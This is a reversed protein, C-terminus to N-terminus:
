PNRHGADYRERMASLLRTDRIEPKQLVCTECLEGGSTMYYRCCGGRSRFTRSFLERNQDDCLTLDFYHLQRNNLPSGSRKLIKMASNRARDECGLERGIELFRGAVADAVLRWLASRSLSTRRYLHDVLPMMHDEIGMRYHDCLGDHDPLQIAFDAYEVRDTWSRQTLFRVHARRVLVTKDDHKLPVIHFRMAYNQLSLDPLIGFRVFMPVTALTFVYCYDVMMAAACTKLDTNRSFSGEYELYEDVLAENLVFRDARVWGTELDGFQTLVESSVFACSALLAAMGECQQPGDSEM